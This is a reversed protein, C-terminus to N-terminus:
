DLALALRLQRQNDVLPAVADLKLDVDDPERLSSRVASVHTWDLEHWGPIGRVRNEIRARHIDQDSCHTWVVYSPADYETAIERFRHVETDRAVGDLVVSRGSRLQAITLNWLISWGVDRYRELDMQVFAAQVDDFPTLAAMVWHWALVPASLVSAAVDALTSKGTGPAGTIVVVTAM